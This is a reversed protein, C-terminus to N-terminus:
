ADDVDMEWGQAQHPYFESSSFDESTGAELRGILACLMTEAGEVMKKRWTHHKTCPKPIHRRQVLERLQAPSHLNNEPTVQILSGRWDVEGNDLILACDKREDCSKIVTSKPRQNERAGRQYM